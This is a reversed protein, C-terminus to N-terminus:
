VVSKRDLDLLTQDVDWLVIDYRGMDGGQKSFGGPVCGRVAKLM